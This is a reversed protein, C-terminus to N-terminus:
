PRVLYFGSVVLTIQGAEDPRRLAAVHVVETDCHCGLLSSVLRSWNLGFGEAEVSHLRDIHFALSMYICCTNIHISIVELKEQLSCLDKIEGWLHTPNGGRPDSTSPSLLWRSNWFDRGRRCGSLWCGTQHRTQDWLRWLDTLRSM